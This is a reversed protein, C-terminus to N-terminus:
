NKLNGGRQPLYNFNVGGQWLLLPPHFPTRVIIIWFQRLQNKQSLKCKGSFPVLIGLITWNTWKNKLVPNKEPYAPKNKKYKAHLQPVMVVWFQRLQIKQSFGRKGLLLGFPGFHSLKNMQRNSCCKKCSQTMIKKKYKAHLQPVMLVWFQHLRIKQFFDQKGLLLSFPGFHGLKDMQGNSCCKEWSQTM